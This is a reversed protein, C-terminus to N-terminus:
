WINQLKGETKRKKKKRKMWLSVDCPQRRKVFFSDSEHERTCTPRKKQRNEAKTTVTNLNPSWDPSLSKRIPKIVETHNNWAIWFFVNKKWFERAFLINTASTLEYVDRFPKKWLFKKQSQFRKKHTFFWGSKELPATKTKSLNIHQLVHLYMNKLPPPM